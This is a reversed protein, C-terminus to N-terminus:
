QGKSQRIELEGVPKSSFETTEEARIYYFKHPNRQKVLSQLVSCPSMAVSMASPICVFLVVIKNFSSCKAVTFMNLKNKSLYFTTQKIIVEGFHGLNNNIQM